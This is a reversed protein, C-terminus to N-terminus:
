ERELNSAETVQSELKKTDEAHFTGICRVVAEENNHSLSALHKFTISAKPHRLRNQYACGGSVPGRCSSLSLLPSVRRIHSLSTMVTWSTIRQAKESVLSVADHLIAGPSAPLQEPSNTDDCIHDSV